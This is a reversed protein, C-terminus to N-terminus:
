NCILHSLIPYSLIRYAAGSGPDWFLPASSARSVRAGRAGYRVRKFPQFFPPGRGIGGGGRDAGSLILYCLILFNTWIRYYQLQPDKVNYAYMMAFELLIMFETNFIYYKPSVPGAIRSFFIYM